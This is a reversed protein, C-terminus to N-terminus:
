EHGISATRGSRLVDVKACRTALTLVQHAGELPPAGKIWERDGWNRGCHPVSDQELDRTGPKGNEVEPWAFPPGLGGCRRPGGGERHHHVDRGLLGGVPWPRQHVAVEELLDHRPGALDQSRGPEGELQGLDV